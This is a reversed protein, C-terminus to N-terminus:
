SKEMYKRLKGLVEEFDLPKGVHDDMGAALCNEIDERFVNATMAIIPIKKANPTDLARIRRTAEYGDMEPMQIDMFIMDYTDPEESFKRVAEVGNEACDIALATPELITLVIERNIEVDEALLIRRGAFNDAETQTEANKTEQETGLCENICDAINSPFLPKSLFKAAGAGKAEKEVLTREVVSILIVVSKAAPQGNGSIWRSLEIGNMGPMKWDVFYMDYPGSKQILKIATEGDEATDCAIKFQEAVRIFFNRVEPDDDVALIRINGWNVGPNLLSPHEGSVAKAQMTFVFTSGKGLQSEVWISGNMMEVIRKSIALGLGTGGFKRSTGSDAQEFSVFIRAKQSDSIGIGTDIVEIRITCLDDERSLLKTTLRIYGQDPTFKVANSLLNAIVQAIRQDDGLLCRPIKKDLDVHLRLNKEEVRFNIVNVVKQLMKEFNFEEISLEFKNAEIKSIDLIDNIVGLLHTSADGIKDLCYDKREIEAASKAISTMGIIANMPTRMEHSMNALFESKARSNRLAEERAEILSHTMENRAVANALLLSGSRLMSEEALPFSREDFCDDFSVFGWFQEQLFVPVVLVSKVGYPSLRALEAPSLFRVPSNITEGGSLKEEWFPFTEEYSFADPKKIKEIEKSRKSEWQYIRKYYQKGEHRYNQWINVHDADVCGALLEMGKYLAKEFAKEDDATLLITATENMGRLLKDQRMLARGTNMVKRREKLYTRNQFVFAMGIFLGAIVISKYNDLAQQRLSIPIVLSPFHYAVSLTAAIVALHLLLFVIRAKKGSLIFIIVISMVFYAPMSGNMGGLLFFALPFLIDGLVVLFCWRGIQYLRFYNCVFILAVISLIVGLMVLFVVIGYGMVLRFITAVIAAVLGVLAVVNLMRTDLPYNESLINKKVFTKIFRIL